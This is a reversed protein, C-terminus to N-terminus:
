QKIKKPYPEFVDPLSLVNKSKILTPDPQNYTTMPPTLLAAELAAVEELNSTNSQQLVSIQNEISLRWELPILRQLIQNLTDTVCNAWTTEDPPPPCAM